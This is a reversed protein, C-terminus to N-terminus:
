RDLVAVLGQRGTTGDRRHSFHDASGSTCIDVDHVLTVDVRALAARVTAPLDLAPRDAVTRAEVEPGFTAVMRDLDGRGFEYRAPHVCPGLAARVPGRGISRLRTVTGELVGALLGPWGAHAVAVADDCALAVPACDATLVVLPLGAVATCAADAEPPAGIGAVAEAAVVTASHTQRLWCWDIPDDLALREALRRRNEAVADPLDGVGDGLNASEFPAASVGGHRDSWVVRAPGLSIEILSIDTRDASSSPFTSSTM